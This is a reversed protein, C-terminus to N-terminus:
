WARTPASSSRFANPVAPLRLAGLEPDDYEADDFRDPLEGVAYTEATHQEACDVTQHRQTPAAVDEPTSCGARVSSPRTSRTSRSRTSTPPRTPAAPACLAAAAVALLLVAVPTRGSAACPERDRDCRGRLDSVLLAAITGGLEYAAERDDDTVEGLVELM